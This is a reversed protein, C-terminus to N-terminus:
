RFHRGDSSNYSQDNKIEKPIKNFFNKLISLCFYIVASIFISNVLPIGMTITMGAISGLAWAILSPYNIWPTAANNPLKGNKRTSDLLDRNTRLIYYDTLMIGAIPPFIVGAIILFGVFNDLIGIVTFFTGISGAILTLTVYNIKKGIMYEIINSM